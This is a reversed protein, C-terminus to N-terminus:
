LRFFEFSARSKEFEELIKQDITSYARGLRKRHRAKEKTIREVSLDKIESCFCIAARPLRYKYEGIELLVEERAVELRYYGVPVSNFSKRLFVWDQSIEDIDKAV